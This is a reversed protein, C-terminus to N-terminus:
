DRKVAIWSAVVGAPNGDHPATRVISGVIAPRQDIGNPWNPILYGVYDYVWEAIDPSSGVGQFRVAFPNGFSSSGTLRLETAPGFVLRGSFSGLDFADIVLEGEGFRISNFDVNPTPDNIFSRYTWSGTFAETGIQAMSIEKELGQSQAASETASLASQLGAIGPVAAAIGIGFQWLM